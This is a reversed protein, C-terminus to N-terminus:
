IGPNQNGFLPRNVPNDPQKLRISGVMPLVAPVAPGALGQKAILYALRAYNLAHCYHDDGTKEWSSMITGDETPKDVRKVAKLHEKLTALEDCKTFGIAGTNVAKCTGNLTETRDAKVIGEEESLTYPELTTKNPRVYHCAWHHLSHIGQEKFWLANSIDPMADMVGCAIGFCGCLFKVRSRFYDGGEQKIRELYIVRLQGAAVEKMAVFWCTKGMDIGVFVGDSVKVPAAEVGAPIYCANGETNADVVSTMFATEADEFPYGLKMNVWDRKAPYDVISALTEGITNVSPVDFPVIQYGHVERDPYRHVWQRQTKDCVAEWPIPTKCTTCRLFAEKLKVRPDFADEREFKLCDGDFGPIEVDTLFNPATWDKCHPCRICYSAQTSAQFDIDIGYNFITPTSFQRKLKRSGAHGLRSNFLSLKAQDCFDKEDIILGQAPVSIGATKGVSGRIYLLSNGFKKLQTSDVDKDRAAKLQKSALIVPDIRGQVFSSAFSATPLVYILTFNKQVDVLGLALRLALESFGVQSCKRGVIESVTDSLIDIQYEHGEFSWPKGDDEPHRTNRIFWEPMKSLDTVSSVGARVRDMYNSFDFQSIM